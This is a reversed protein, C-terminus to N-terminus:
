LNYLASLLNQINNNNNYCRVDPKYNQAMYHCAQYLYNHGIVTRMISLDNKIARTNNGKNAFCCSSITRCFLAPGFRVTVGTRSNIIGVFRDSLVLLEGCCVIVGSWQDCIAAMNRQKNTRGGFSAFNTSPFTTGRERRGRDLRGGRGGGASHKDTTERRLNTCNTRHNRRTEAHSAYVVERPSYVVSPGRRFLVCRRSTLGQTLPVCRGNAGTYTTCM